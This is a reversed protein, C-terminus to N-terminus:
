KVIKKAKEWFSNDGNIKRFYWWEAGWLYIGEAGTKKAFNAIEAMDEANFKETQKNFPVDGIWLNDAPWPEAQLEAIIFKNHM